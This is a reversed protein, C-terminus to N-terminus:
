VLRGARRSRPLWFAAVLGSSGNYSTNSPLVEIGALQPPRQGAARADAACQIARSRTRTASSTPSCGAPLRSCKAKTLRATSISHISAQSWLDGDVHAVPEQALLNPRVNKKLPRTWRLRRALIWARPGNRAAAPSDFADGEISGGCHKALPRRGHVKPRQKRRVAM